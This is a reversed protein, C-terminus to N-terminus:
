TYIDGELSVDEIAERVLEGPMGCHGEIAAVLEDRDALRTVTTRHRSSESLSLNHIRISRDPLFREVVVANMFTASSRYSDSIVEDFHALERPVPSATYGHIVKGDRLLDMRSRGLEDRPHLVYRASGFQVELDRDLDRPLPEYFPAAYGVDILYERRQLRLVTVIHVDPASMEAGCLDADYGLHRLLLNFHPNNAYCTGGFSHRDIGDLHQELEPITREGRKRALLKSINEFPVRELQARVLRCLQQYSPPAAEVGLLELYRRFTERNAMESHVLM